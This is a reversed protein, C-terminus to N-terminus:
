FFDRGSTETLGPSEEAKMFRIEGGVNFITDYQAGRYFACLPEYGIKLYRKVDLDSVVVDSCGRRRCIFWPHDQKWSIHRARKELKEYPSYQQKKM